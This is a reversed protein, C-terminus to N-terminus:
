GIAGLNMLAEGAARMDRGGSKQLRKIVTAQVQAQEPKDAVTGAKLVKQPAAKVTKQTDPQKSMLEDFLRAKNAIVLAKHNDVGAVEEKSFGQKVLYEGLAARMAPGKVPDAIDPL